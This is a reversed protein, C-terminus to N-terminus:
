NGNTDLKFIVIDELGTNTQGTATGTTRYAIYPNGTADVTIAPFNDDLTTNFTPQQRVWQTNGTSDLKFVVIDNSGTNTQGSATGGNTEYSDSFNGDADAVISPAVDNVSTNVTPQQTIWQVIRM